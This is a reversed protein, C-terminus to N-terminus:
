ISKIHLDSCTIGLPSRHCNTDLVFEVWVYTGLLDTNLKSQVLHGYLKLNLQIKPFAKSNLGM